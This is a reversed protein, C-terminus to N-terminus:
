QGTGAAAAPASIGARTQIEELRRGRTEIGVGALVLASLLLPGAVIYASAALSPAVHALMAGQGAMGGFKGSGAALGSGTARLRTPYVEASYPSLVSTMGSSFVLLAVVLAVLVYNHHLAYPAFVAMAVLSLATLAGVAVMTGKTSWRSYLWAVLLAGPFALLASKALVADSAGVGFGAHRLNTPLWLLFGFNVLGWALGYIAIAITQRVFPVRFLPVLGTRISREVNWRSELDAQDARVLKAGFQALVARAEAFRGSVALFRPSEPIFNNLLVLLVGTPLNLFWMIRWGYTPELLTAAGSAALYGGVTGLGALLVVLAARHRAPMFESLLSFAIPLLGGASLGMVFCMFVNWYFGPMSACIATAMFILAALLITARRGIRDGLLGWGFSGITTGLLAVFPLLAVTSKALHYEKTMGPVVFGLTAPKMVDIILAVALVAVLIWQAWNLPAEDLGSVNVIEGQRQAKRMEASPYLGYVAAVIGAVILGMGFLMTGDISMGALKYGMDAASVFMPIHLAVGGAIAACGAYFAIPSGFVIGPRRSATATSVKM